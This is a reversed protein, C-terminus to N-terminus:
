ADNDLMGQLNCPAPAGAASVRGRRGCAQQGNYSGSQLFDPRLAWDDEIRQHRIHLAEDGYRSTQCQTTTKVEGLRFANGCAGTPNLEDGVPSQCGYATYLTTGVPFNAMESHLQDVSKPSTTTQVAASPVFLVKFPFRPPNHESGDRSYRAMDSLGVQPSCQSAQEFKKALAVTAFGEAPPIHNSMNYEFFNYSQGTALSHLLVFDGSHIGSRLMKIGIGPTVGGNSDIDLASGMRIFGRQEGSAFLGTFPSGSAVDLKFQCVSGITHILKKRGKPMEPMYNDFVTMMASVFNGAPNEFQPTRAKNQLLKRSYYAEKSQASQQDFSGESYDCYDYRGTVSFRGCGNKTKCTDCAGLLGGSCEGKCTCGDITGQEASVQVDGQKHRVLRAAHSLSSLSAVGLVFRM